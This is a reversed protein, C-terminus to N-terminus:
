QVIPLLVLKQYIKEKEKVNSYDEYAGEERQM